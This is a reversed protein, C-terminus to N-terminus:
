TLINYNPLMHSTFPCRQIGFDSHKKERKLEAMSKLFIHTIKSTAADYKNAYKVNFCAEIYAEFYTCVSYANSFHGGHETECVQMSKSKYESGGTSPAHYYANQSVGM